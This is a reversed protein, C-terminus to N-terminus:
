KKAEKVPDKVIPYTEYEVNWLWGNVREVMRIYENRVVASDIKAILDKSSGM